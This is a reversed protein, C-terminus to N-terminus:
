GLFPFIGTENIHIQGNVYFLKSRQEKRAYMLGMIDILGLQHWKRHRIASEISSINSTIIRRRAYLNTTTRESNIFQPFKESFQM